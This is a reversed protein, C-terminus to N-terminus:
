SAVIAATIQMENGETTVTPPRKQSRPSRAVTEHSNKVFHTGSVGELQYTIHHHRLM